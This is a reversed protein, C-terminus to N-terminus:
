NGPYRRTSKKDCKITVGRNNKQSANNMGPWLKDSLEKSSIGKNEVTEILVLVFLEKLKKPFRYTIDTGKSDFIQFGGLFWVANKNQRGYIKAKKKNRSRLSIKRKQIFYVAIILLIIAGVGM